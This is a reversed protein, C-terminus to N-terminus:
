PRDLLSLALDVTARLRTPSADARATVRLGSMLSMLLDALAASPAGNAISGDRQGREISTRLLEHTQQWKSQLALRITPDDIGELLGASVICNSEAADDSACLGVLASFFGDLATRGTAAAHTARALHGLRAVACDVAQLYLAPKSGFANYLSQKGLGTADTLTAVSTGGYGHATFADALRDLVDPASFSRERPM